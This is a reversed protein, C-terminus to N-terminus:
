DSLVLSDLISKEESSLDSESERNPFLVQYIHDNKSILLGYAQKDGIAIVKYALDGHFTTASYSSFYRTNKVAAEISEPNGVIASASSFYSVIIDPFITVSSQPNQSVFDDIAKTTEPSQFAVIAGDFMTIDSGTKKAWTKPYKITFKYDSNSYTEWDATKPRAVSVEPEVYDYGTRNERFVFYGLTILLVIVFIGLLVKLTSSAQEEPSHLNNLEM